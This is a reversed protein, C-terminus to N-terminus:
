QSDPSYSTNNTFLSRYSDPTYGTNKRFTRGFYSYDSFGTAGAIEKISMSGERLLRAANELRLKKLFNWITEGTNKRFLECLYNESLFFQSALQSLSVPQHYNQGLYSQISAVTPHPSYTFRGRYSAMAEQVMLCLQSCDTRIISQGSPFPLEPAERTSSFFFCAPHRVGSIDLAISNWGQPPEGKSEMIAIFCSDGPQAERELQTAANLLSEPSDMDIKVTPIGQKQELRERLRLVAKEMESIELPKLVYGIAGYELAKRAVEFDSYASIVVFEVEQGLQSRIQSIMEIGTLGPMRIDTFVADPKISLIERIAQKASSCRGCITFGYEEWPLIQELGTLAWPEDDVLIIKHM